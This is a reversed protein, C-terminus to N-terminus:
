SLDLDSKRAEEETRIRSLALTAAVLAALPYMKHTDYLVNDTIRVVLSTIFVAFVALAIMKDYEYETVRYVKLLVALWQGHWFMFIIFGVLGTSVLVAMYDNHIMWEYQGLYESVRYRDVGYGVGLLPRTKFVQTSAQWLEIRMALTSSSRDDLKGIDIDSFRQSIAPLMMLALILLVPLFTLMRRHKMLGIVIMAVLFGIWGARGYTFFLGTGFLGTLSGWLLRKSNEKANLFHVLCLTLIIALYVGSGSHGLRATEANSFTEGAKGAVGLLGSITPWIPAAVIAAIVWRVKRISDLKYLLVAYIALATALRLTVTLGAMFHDEVFVLSVLCVILFGLFPKFVPLRSYDIKNFLFFYIAGGVIALGMLGKPHVATGGGLYDYYALPNLALLALIIAIEINFLLLYAFILGGIGFLLFLLPVNVVLCGLILGLVLSLGSLLVHTRLTEDKKDLRMIKRVGPM